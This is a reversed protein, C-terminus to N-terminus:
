PQATAKGASTEGVRWLMRGAQQFAGGPIFTITKAAPDFRVRPLFVIFPDGLKQNRSVVVSM